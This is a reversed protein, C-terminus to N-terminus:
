EYKEKFRMVEITYKYKEYEEETQKNGFAEIILGNCRKFNLIYALLGAWFAAPQFQLRLGFISIEFITTLASFKIVNFLGIGITLAFIYKYFKPLFFYFIFNMFVTLFATYHALTLNVNFEVGHFVATGRIAKIIADICYVSLLLLPLLNLHKKFSLPPKNIAM